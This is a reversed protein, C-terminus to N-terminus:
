VKKIKEKPKDKKEEKPKDKKEEKPEEKKEEKPEEKKKETHFNGSKKSMMSEIEKWPMTISNTASEIKAVGGDDSIKAHDGNLTVSKGEYKEKAADEPSQDEEEKEEKPEEKKEKKPEEEETDKGEKLGNAAFLKIKLKAIDDKFGEPNEAELKDIEAQIDAIKKDNVKRFGNRFGKAAFLKLELRKIDDKYGEANEAKLIDIEAQIDAPDDIKLDEDIAVELSKEFEAKNFVHKNSVSEALKGWKIEDSISEDLIFAMQHHTVVQSGYADTVTKKEEATLKRNHFVDVQNANMYKPNIDAQKEDYAIGMAKYPNADNRVYLNEAEIVHAGPHASQGQKMQVTKSALDYANSFKDFDKVDRKKINSQDM